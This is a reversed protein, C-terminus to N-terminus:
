IACTRGRSACERRPSTSTSRASSTGADRSRRRSRTRSRSSSARNGAPSRRAAVSGPGLSLRRHRRLGPSRPEQGNAGYVDDSEITGDANVVYDVILALRDVNANLSTLDTSLRPPLMPFVAAPTYVSTTNVAAHGDIPSGKRAAVDVDAVAVLIRVRGGALQEAASLQDLDRSDDNDISCWPLERLDKVPETAVAPATTLASAQALADPPFEPDLGRERM